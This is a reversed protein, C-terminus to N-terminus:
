TKSNMWLNATFLVLGLTAAISGIGAFPGGIEPKGFVVLALGAMGIPLGANHLWFHWNALRSTLMRPFVHYALATLALTAWGLLNIHVHVPRLQFNHTNAMFL